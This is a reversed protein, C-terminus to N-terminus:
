IPLSDLFPGQIKVLEGLKDEPPIEPDGMRGLIKWIASADIGILNYAYSRKIEEALQIPDFSM